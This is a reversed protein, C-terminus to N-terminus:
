DARRVDAGTECGARGVEQVDSADARREKASEVRAAVPAHEDQADLIGGALSRRRLGHLHDEVADAAEAKVGVLPWEVL